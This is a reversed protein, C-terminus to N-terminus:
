AVRYVGGKAIRFGKGTARVVCTMGNRRSTCAFGGVTLTRGYRLVLHRGEGPDGIWRHITLRGNRGM